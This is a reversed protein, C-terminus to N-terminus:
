RQGAGDTGLAGCARGGADVQREGGPRVRDARPGRARWRLREAPARLREAEALRDSDGGLAVAIVAVKARVLAWYASHFALLADEGPSGGARRYEQLLLRAARPEGNAELDMALFALDAGVDLQRLRPDFEVRDVIQVGDELLVHECRLDGHGDRVHGGRARENLKAANATVFAHAFERVLHLRWRAPDVIAQLEHLNRQWRELVQAPEAQRVVGAGDHFRALVRATACIDQDRLQCADILRQLTRSEEFRRMQVVYEFAQPDGEEGLALGASTRVISRVGLYTGPALEGNIRVEEHCAARRLAPTSYDLFELKVPKKIKYACRGVLFVWSAHTERQEVPGAGFAASAKLDRLLEALKPAPAHKQQKGDNNV